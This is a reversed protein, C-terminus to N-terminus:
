LVEDLIERGFLAELVEQDEGVGLRDLHNMAVPLDERIQRYSEMSSPLKHGDNDGLTINAM